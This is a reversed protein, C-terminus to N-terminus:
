WKTRNTIYQIMVVHQTSHQLHYLDSLITCRHPKLYAVVDGIVTKYVNNKVNIQVNTIVTYAYHYSTCILSGVYWIMRIKQDSDAVEEARVACDETYGALCSQECNV